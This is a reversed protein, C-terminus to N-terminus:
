PKSKLWKDISQHARNGITVARYIAAAFIGGLFLLFAVIVYGM